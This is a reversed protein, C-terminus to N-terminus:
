HGFLAIIIRSKSGLGLLVTQTLSAFWCATIVSLHTRIAEHLLASALPLCSNTVDCVDDVVVIYVVKDDIVWAFCWGLKMHCVGLVVHNNWLCSDSCCRNISIRLLEIAHPVTKLLEINSPWSPNINWCPNLTLGWDNTLLIARFLLSLLESRVGKGIAFVDLGDSTLTLNLNRGLSLNYVILNLLIRCSHVIDPLFSFSCRLFNAIPDRL